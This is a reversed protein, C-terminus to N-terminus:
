AASGDVGPIGAPSGNDPAPKNTAKPTAPATASTPKVQVAKSPAAPQPRLVPKDIQVGAVTAQTPVPQGTEIRVADPTDIVKQTDINVVEVAPVSYDVAEETSIEGEARAVLTPAANMDQKPYSLVRISADFKVWPYTLNNRFEGSLEMEKDLEALIAKKLEPGNLANFVQKM